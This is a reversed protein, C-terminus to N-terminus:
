HLLSNTRNQSFNLYLPISYLVTMSYEELKLANQSIGSKGAVVIDDYSNKIGQLSSLHPQGLKCSSAVVLQVEWALNCMITM